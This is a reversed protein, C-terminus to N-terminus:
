RWEDATLPFPISVGLGAAARAIQGARRRSMCVIYAGAAASRRILETTKGGGHGRVILDTVQEETRYSM